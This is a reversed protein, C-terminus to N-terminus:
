IVIKTLDSNLIIPKLAVIEPYNKQLVSPPNMLFIKKGLIYSFGMELFSNAGIYNEINNKTQNLVLIGDSLKIKEIHQNIFQNKIEVKEDETLKTYDAVGESTPTFVKFGMNELVAKLKKMEDFFSMSGCLTITKSKLNLIKKM